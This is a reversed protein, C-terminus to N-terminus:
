TMHQICKKSQMRIIVNYITTEIMNYQLVNCTLLIQKNTLYKQQLYHIKEENRRQLFYPKLRQLRNFKTHTTDM